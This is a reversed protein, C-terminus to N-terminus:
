RAVLLGFLPALTISDTLSRGASCFAGESTGTGFSGEAGSPAADFFTGFQRPGRLTAHSPLHSSSRRTRFSVVPIPSLRTQVIEAWTTFNTSVSAQPALPRFLRLLELRSTPVLVRAPGSHARDKAGFM